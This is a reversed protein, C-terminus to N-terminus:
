NHENNSALINVIYLKTILNLKLCNQNLVSIQELPVASILLQLISVLKQILLEVVSVFETRNM